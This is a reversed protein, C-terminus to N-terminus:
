KSENMLQQLVLPLECLMALVEASGGLELIRDIVDDGRVQFGCCDRARLLSNLRM